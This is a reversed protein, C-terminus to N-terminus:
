SQGGRRAAQRRSLRAQLRQHDAREPDPRLPRRYGPGVEVGAAKVRFISIANRESSPRTHPRTLMEIYNQLDVRALTKSKHLSEHVLPWPASGDKWSGCCRLRNIRRQAKTEQMKVLGIITM